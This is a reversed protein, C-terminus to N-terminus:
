SDVILKITSVANLVLLVSCAQHMALMATRRHLRLCRAGLERLGASLAM